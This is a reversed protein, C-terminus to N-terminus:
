LSHKQLKINLSVPGERLIPCLLACCLAPLRLRWAVALTSCRLAGPLGHVADQLIDM